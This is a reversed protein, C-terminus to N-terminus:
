ARPHSESYAARLKDKSVHTYRQTTTANSHGLLEQISRTDAGNNMLHTAFSHRLAHPHTGGPLGVRDCAADVIRAIDRRTVRNGRATLVLAEGSHESAVEDRLALWRALADRAHDGLPVLREKSGKGMVRVSRADSSVSALDLGCVESARLGSGYLVELVMRDRAARWPEAEPDESVILDTVTTEDLPRPLRGKVAPTSIAGTPDEEVVGHRLAWTFYRRLAAIRRAITRTSAGREYLAALYARVHERDIDGPALARQSDFIWEAFLEVDRRYALRTNQSSATLSGIFRAISWGPLRADRVPCTRGERCPACATAHGAHLSVAPNEPRAQGRPVTRTRVWWSFFSRLHAARQSVSETSYGVHELRALYDELHARTLDAPVQARGAGPRDESSVHACFHLLDSRRASRVVENSVLSRIYRDIELAEELTEARNSGKSAVM